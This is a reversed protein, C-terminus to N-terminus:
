ELINQLSYSKTCDWTCDIFKCNCNCCKPMFTLINMYLM